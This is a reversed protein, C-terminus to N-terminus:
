PQVEEIDSPGIELNWVRGNSLTFRALIGYKDNVTIEGSTGKPILIAFASLNCVTRVKTGVPFAEATKM